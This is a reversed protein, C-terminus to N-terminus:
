HESIGFDDFVARSGGSEGDGAQVIIESLATLSSKRFPFEPNGKQFTVPQGNLTATYTGRECDFQIKVELPRTPDCPQDCAIWGTESKVSIQGTDAFMLMSAAGAKNGLAIRCTGELLKIKADAEGRIFNGVPIRLIPATEHAQDEVLLAKGQLPNVPNTSADVVRFGAATEAPGDVSGLAPPSGATEDEFDAFFDAAHAASALAVIPVLCCLWYRM